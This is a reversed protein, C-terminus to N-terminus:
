SRPLPRRLVKSGFTLTGIFFLVAICSTVALIVYFWRAGLVDILAGGALNGLIGSLASAATYLSQGTAKLNEPTLTYIYNAASAIILGSGFGHLTEILIVSALSNACLGLLLSALGYCIGGGIALIHLPVRRRLPQALLLMPIELMAAYSNIVGYRSSSVNIEELLYPLFPLLSNVCFWLLFVFVLFTCYYYERFLTLPNFTEKEPKPGDAPRPLPKSDDIFLSVLLVISMLVSCVPFTWLTGKSAIVGAISLGVITFGLSGFARIPGYPLRKQNCYRVLWNDLLSSTPNRFFYVVSLYCLLIPLNLIPLGVINPIFAFLISAVVLTIQFVRRISRIRDSIMGWVPTAFITIASLVANIMGLTSASYGQQQLMVSQYNGVAMVGWFAFQLLAFKISPSQERLLSRTRAINM